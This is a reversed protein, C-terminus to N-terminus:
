PQREEWLKLDKARLQLTTTGNWANQQVNFLVEIPTGTRRSDQLTGLHEAMGFGIVEMGRYTGDEQHRISFKLHEGEKGVPRVGGVIELGRAHFIPQANEPGHPAFQKLVNWFRGDIAGLEIESDVEIEPTLLEPTIADRVVEDFRRQFLSVNKELLSVGAAHDHGGFGVLVDSCTQLLNYVNVGSISRASGKVVGNSGTLMITPLYYRGVLRSAVIGIVGPHWDPGYLVVSHPHRVLHEEALAFAEAQTDQDLTRRRHNAQELQFALDTADAENQSLLLAVARGADGMRGAANIRPGIGFVINHTTAAPLDVRAHEALKRLGLRPSTRLVELGERMLVRNEGHLPVIDSAISVAVLDLYPIAEEPPRGLHALVAQVLKF